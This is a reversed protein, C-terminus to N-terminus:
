ARMAYCAVWPGAESSRRSDIVGQLEKNQIRPVTTSYLMTYYLITHYPITHYPIIHYLITHYPIILITPYPLTHYPITPYPITHYSITPITPYPLTPYPINYCLRTNYPISELFNSHLVPVISAPTGEERPKPTPPCDYELKGAEVTIRNIISIM